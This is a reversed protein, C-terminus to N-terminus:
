LYDNYIIARLIVGMFNCVVATGNNYLIQAIFPLPCGQYFPEAVGHAFFEISYDGHIAVTLMLSGIYPIKNVQGFM